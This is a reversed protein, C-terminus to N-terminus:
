TISGHESCNSHCLAHQELETMACLQLTKFQIENPGKFRPRRNLKWVTIVLYFFNLLYLPSAAELLVCKVYRNVCILTNFNILPCM